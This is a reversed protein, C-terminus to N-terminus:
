IKFFQYFSFRFLRENLQNVVSSNTTEETSSDIMQDNNGIIEVSNKLHNLSIILSILLNYIFIHNLVNISFGKMSQLISPILPRVTPCFWHIIKQVIM